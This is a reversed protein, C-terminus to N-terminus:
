FMCVALSMLMVFRGEKKKNCPGSRIYKLMVLSEMMDYRFTVVYSYKLIKEFIDFTFFDFM